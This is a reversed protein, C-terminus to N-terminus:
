PIDVKVSARWMDSPNSYYEIEEVQYEKADDGLIIRDGVQIGRGQATIYAKTGGEALEFVYDQGAVMNRYDHIKPQFNKSQSRWYTLRSLLSALSFWHNTSSRISPM